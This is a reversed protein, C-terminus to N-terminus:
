LKFISSFLCQSVVWCIKLPTLKVWMSTSVTHNQQCLLANPFFHEKTHWICNQNRQFFIKLFLVYFCLKTQTMQIWAWGWDEVVTTTLLILSLQSQIGTVSSMQQILYLIYFVVCLYLLSTPRRLFGCSKLSRGEVVGCATSWHGWEAQGNKLGQLKTANKRTNGRNPVSVCLMCVSLGWLIPWEKNKWECGLCVDM